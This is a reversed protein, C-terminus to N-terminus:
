HELVHEDSASTKGTFILAVLPALLWFSRGLDSVFVNKLLAPLPDLAERPVLVLAITIVLGMQLLSFLCAEWWHGRERAMGRLLHSRWLLFFVLLFVGLFCVLRVTISSVSQFWRYIYGLLPANTVVALSVYLSLIVHVIRDRGAVIGYLIGVGGLVFLFMLASPVAISGIQFTQSFLSSMRKARIRVRVLM